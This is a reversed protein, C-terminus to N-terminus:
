WHHELLPLLWHNSSSAVSIHVYICPFLKSFITIHISPLEWLSFCIRLWLSFRTFILILSTTRIFPSSFFWSLQLDSNSIIHVSSFTISVGILSSYEMSNYQSESEVVVLAWSLLVDFTLASSIFLDAAEATSCFILSQLCYFYTLSM